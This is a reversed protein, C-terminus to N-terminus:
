RRPPVDSLHWSVLVWQGGDAVYAETTRWTDVRPAGKGDKSEVKYYGWVIGTRGFTRYKINIPTINRVRAFSRQLTQQRRTASFNQFDTPSATDAWFGVARADLGRDIGAPESTTWQAIYRAHARKLSEEDQGLATQGDMLIAVVTM